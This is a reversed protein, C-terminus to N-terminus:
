KAKTWDITLFDTVLVVPKDGADYGFWSTYFGDGWGSAFMAINGPPQKLMLFFNPEFKADAGNQEGEKQWAEWKNPNRALVKNAADGTAPDYFAGTGADVPYGFTEGQKLTALDQREVLAMRWRVVPRDALLVRAFAIRGKSEGAAAVALQV